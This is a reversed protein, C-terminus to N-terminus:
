DIIGRLFKNPSAAADRARIKSANKANRQSELEVLWVTEKLNLSSVINSIARKFHATQM